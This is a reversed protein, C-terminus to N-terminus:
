LLEVRRPKAIMTVRSEEAVQSSNCYTDNTVRERERENNYFKEWKIVRM